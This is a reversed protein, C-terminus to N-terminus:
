PQLSSPSSALYSAPSFFLGRSSSTTWSSTTSLTTQNRDATALCTLVLFLLNTRCALIPGTSPGRFLGELGDFPRKRQVSIARRALASRRCRGRRSRANCSESSQRGPSQDCREQPASEGAVKACRAPYLWRRSPGRRRRHCRSAPRPPPRAHLRSEAGGHKMTVVNPADDGSPRGLRCRARRSGNTSRARRRGTLAGDRAAAM